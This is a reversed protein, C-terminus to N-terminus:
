LPQNQGHRAVAGASAEGAGSLTDFWQDGLARGLIRPGPGPHARRLPCPSWPHARHTMYDECTFSTDWIPLLAMAGIAEVDTGRFRAWSQAFRQYIAPSLEKPGAGFLFRVRQTNSQADPSNLATGIPVARLKLVVVSIHLPKSAPENKLSM